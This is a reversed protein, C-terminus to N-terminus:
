KHKIILEGLVELEGVLEQFRIQPINMGDKTGKYLKELLGKYM